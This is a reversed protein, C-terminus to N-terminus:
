LCFLSVCFNLSSMDLKLVKVSDRVCQHFASFVFVYVTLYEEVAIFSESLRLLQFPVVDLAKNLGHLVLTRASGLYCICGRGM